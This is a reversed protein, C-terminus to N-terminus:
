HVAETTHDITPPGQYPRQLAAFEPTTVATIIADLLAAGQQAAPTETLVPGNCGHGDIVIIPSGGRGGLAEQSARHAATVLTDLDADDVSRALAPDLGAITLLGALVDDGVSDGQKHLRTGVVDYLRSFADQGATASAEAFVRGLRRSRDIM